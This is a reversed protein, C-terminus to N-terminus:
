RKIGRLQDHIDEAQVSDALHELYPKEHEVKARQLLAIVEDFCEVPISVSEGAIALVWTPVCESGGLEPEMVLPGFDAHEISLRTRM